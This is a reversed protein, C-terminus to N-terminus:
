RVRKVEDWYPSDIRTVTAKATGLSAKRKKLMDDLAARLKPDTTVEFADQLRQFAEERSPIVLNERSLTEKSLDLSGLKGQVKARGFNGTHTGKTRLGHDNAMLNM